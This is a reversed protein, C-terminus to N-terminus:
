RERGNDGLLTEPSTAQRLHKSSEDEERRRVGVRMVKVIQQQDIGILVLSLDLVKVPVETGLTRGKGSPSFVNSRLQGRKRDRQGDPVRSLAFLSVQFWCWGRLDDACGDDRRSWAFPRSKPVGVKM